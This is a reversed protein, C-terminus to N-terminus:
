IKQEYYVTGTKYKQIINEISDPIPGDVVLVIESPQVTQRVISRFARDFHEPADNNYVCMSVSFPMEPTMSIPQDPFKFCATNSLSNQAGNTVSKFGAKKRTRKLAYGRIKNPLIIQVVFRICINYLFRDLGIINHKLMYEQLKVESKFYRWGGRRQYMKEGIRVSVLNEPINKFKMGKQYMRVWLYYDEECYWDIYGGASIVDAKRFMVTVQNFPCRKKLFDKIDEDETPVIRVGIVNDKKDTFEEIFGGVVSLENDQKFCEIQKEFRNQVSIDDADMLAIYDYSCKDMGTKRANGHGVNKSLRIVKFQM